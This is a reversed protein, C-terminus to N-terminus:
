APAGFKYPEHGWQSEGGQDVLQGPIEESPSCLSHEEM